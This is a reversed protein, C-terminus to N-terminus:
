GESVIVLSKIATRQDMAAYANQIHDLDFRQTFVKGPNIKGSLVADLLVEKDYTTVSAIGGRLGVNRWFLQNTNMEAKQPVGVRGVIAGPRGVQVATAVSQETGVCELVADAGNNDTLALVRKVADDGREAVIDTAGFERALKQRDEHRSMAIIRKAGRLKAAIVGCLGVAGDGMVVVTDGAKVEASAAAHYGTAMVDALTLLSNLQEDSYDQPQGPIKILAWNANTFRLYEGQYGGNGGAEQNQCNGDFGALCAACHGCGHTFPVVVFDGAQVDTVEAGVAEVVGIAEHGVLSNPERKAIGRYWWLDSGCVCARVIKIVADTPKEIKPKAVEQVAVKGPEIFATAKM